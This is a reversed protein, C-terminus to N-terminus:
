WRRVMVFAVVGALVDGDNGGARDGLIDAIEEGVGVARDLADDVDVHVVVAEIVFIDVRGKLADVHGDGIRVAVDM